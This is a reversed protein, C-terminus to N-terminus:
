GHGLKAENRIVECQDRAWEAYTRQAQQTCALFMHPTFAIDKGELQVYFLGGRVEIYPVSEVLLIEAM